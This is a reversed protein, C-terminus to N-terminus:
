YNKIKIGAECTIRAASNNRRIPLTEVEFSDVIVILGTSIGTLFSRHHM